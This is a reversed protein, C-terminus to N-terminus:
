HNNWECSTFHEDFRDYAGCFLDGGWGDSFQVEIFRGQLAMGQSVISRYLGDFNFMPFMERLKGEVDTKQLTGNNPQEWFEQWWDSVSEETDYITDLDVDELRKPIVAQAIEWFPYACGELEEFLHYLVCDNIQKIHQQAEKEKQNYYAALGKAIEAGDTKGQLYPFLPQYYFSDADELEELIDSVTDEITIEGADTFEKNTFTGMIGLSFTGRVLFKDERCIVEIM